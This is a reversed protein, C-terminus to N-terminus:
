QQLRIEHGRQLSPSHSPHPSFSQVSLQRPAERGGAAGVALAPHAGILPAVSAERDVVCRSEAPLVLRHAGVRHTSGLLGAPCGLERGRPGRPGQDRPVRPRPGGRRGPPVPILHTSISGCYTNRGRRAIIGEGGRMRGEVRFQRLLPDLGTEHFSSYTRKPLVLDGAALEPIIEAGATGAMAHEGWVQLEFDQPLHADDAYVVLWEERDRRAQKLLHREQESTAEEIGAAPKPHVLEPVGQAALCGPPFPGPRELLRSAVRSDGVGIPQRGGAARSRQRPPSRRDQLGHTWAEPSGLSGGSRQAPLCFSHSAAPRVTRKTAMVM